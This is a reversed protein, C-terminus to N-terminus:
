RRCGGSEDAAAATRCFDLMFEEEADPDEASVEGQRELRPMIAVAPLRSWLFPLMERASQRGAWTRSFRLSTSRGGDARFGILRNM